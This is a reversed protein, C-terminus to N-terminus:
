NDCFQLKFVGSHKTCQGGYKRDGRGPGGGIGSAAMIDVRVVLGLQMPLSKLFRSRRESMGLQWGNVM